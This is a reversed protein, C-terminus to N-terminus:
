IGGMWAMFEIDDTDNYLPMEVGADNKVYPLGDSKFYVDTALGSAPTGPATQEPKLADSLNRRGPM